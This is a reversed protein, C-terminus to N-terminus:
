KKIDIKYSLNFGARTGVFVEIDEEPVGADMFEKVIREAEEKTKLVDQTEEMDNTVVIYWDRKSM